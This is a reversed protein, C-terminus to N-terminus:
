IARESEGGIRAIRVDQLSIDVSLLIPYVIILAMLIVAPALLLYGFKARHRPATFDIM